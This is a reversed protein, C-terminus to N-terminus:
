KIVNFILRGVITGIMISFGIFGYGMGTWGGVLLSGAIIGISVLLLVVFVIINYQDYKNRKLLLSTIVFLITVGLSIFIFIGLGDM